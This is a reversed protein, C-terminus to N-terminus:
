IYALKFLKELGLYKKKGKASKVRKLIYTIDLYITSETLSTSPVKPKLTEEPSFIPQIKISKKETYELLKKKIPPTRNKIAFIPKGVKEFTRPKEQVIKGQKVTFVVEKSLISYLLVEITLGLLFVVRDSIIKGRDKEM